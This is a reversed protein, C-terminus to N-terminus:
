TSNLIIRVALDYEGAKCAHHFAELAPQLDEKRSPKEPLPISLYYKVALMHAEKKNKLDKYSFEQVLPHLWYSNNNDTELLSKDLLIDVADVPTKDTFMINIAEMPEPRRFVSIRELLEKENGALKDFLFRANKIREEKSKKFIGPNKLINELTHRKALGVLLKLSFPHGDVSESLSELTDSAIRELGNAKLYDIAFSTELGKLEEKNEDELEDILCEGNDLMPLVRSTLIIKALHTNDRLTSFLLGMEPDKFKRQTDTIFSLDDFILWVPSRKYLEDTLRNIDIKGAKRTGKFSLIDPAQLYGALEELMIELNVDQNHQFSFWFPEAVSAPRFELFVRALTTKGVGAIGSFLLLKNKQLRKLAQPCNKQGAGLSLNLTTKLMNQYPHPVTTKQFKRM